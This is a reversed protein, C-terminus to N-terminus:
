LQKCKCSDCASSEDMKFVLKLIFKNWWCKLKNNLSVIKKGLWILAKGM